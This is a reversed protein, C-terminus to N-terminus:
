RYCFMYAYIYTIWVYIHICLQSLHTCGRSSAVSGSTQRTALHTATITPQRQRLYRGRLGHAQWSHKACVSLCARRSSARLGVLFESGGSAVFAQTIHMCVKMCVFVCVFMCVRMCADRCVYICVKVCTCRSRLHVGSGHEGGDICTSRDSSRFIDNNSSNWVWFSQELVWSHWLTVMTRVSVVAESPTDQDGGHVISHNRQYLVFYSQPVLIFYKHTSALCKMVEGRTCIYCFWVMNM